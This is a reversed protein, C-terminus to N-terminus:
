LNLVGKKFRKNQSRLLEIAIIHKCKFGEKEQNFLFDKCGCFSCTKLFMVEYYSGEKNSRVGYHNKDNLDQIISDQDMDEIFALANVKRKENLIEVNDVYKIKNSTM